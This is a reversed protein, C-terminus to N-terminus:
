GPDALTNCTLGTYFRNIDIWRRMELSALAPLLTQKWLPRGSGITVLEFKYSKSNQTHLTRKNKDLHPTQTVLFSRRMKSCTPSPSIVPGLARYIQKIIPKLVSPTKYNITAENGSTNLALQFVLFKATYEFLLCVLTNKHVKKNQEVRM